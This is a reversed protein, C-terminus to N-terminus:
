EHRKTCEDIPVSPGSCAEDGLSRVRAVKCRLVRSVREDHDVRAVDVALALGYQDLANRGDGLVRCYVDGMNHHAAVEATRSQTRGTLLLSARIFLVAIQGDGQRARCLGVGNLAAAQARVNGAEVGALYLRMFLREAEDIKDPDASDTLLLKQAQINLVGPDVTDAFQPRAPSGIFNPRYHRARSLGISVIVGLGATGVLLMRWGRGNRTPMVGPEKRQNTGGAVNGDMRSGHEAADTAPSCTATRQDM